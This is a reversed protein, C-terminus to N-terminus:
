VNFITRFVVPREKAAAYECIFLDEAPEGIILVKDSADVMKEDAIDYCYNNYRNVAFEVADCNEHMSFYRNRLNEDWCTSQEEFPAIIHLRIPYHMKLGCIIEAAWLPVGKECNVYFDSAGENVAELIIERLKKKAIFCEEEPLINEEGTSTITYKM